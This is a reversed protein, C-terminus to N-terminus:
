SAFKGKEFIVSPPLEQVTDQTVGVGVGVFVTVGVFVGVFVGVCVGVKVLVGVCVGVCVTVGVVEMFSLKHSTFDQQSPEVPTIATGPPHDAPTANRSV